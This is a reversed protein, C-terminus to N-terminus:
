GSPTQGVCRRCREVGDVFSQPQTHLVQGCAEHVHHEDIRVAEIPLVVIESEHAILEQAIHPGLHEINNWVVFRFVAAKGAADPDLIFFSM